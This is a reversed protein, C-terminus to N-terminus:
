FPERNPLGDRKERWNNKKKQFEKETMPTMSPSRNPGIPRKSLTWWQALIMLSNSVTQNKSYLKCMSLALLILTTCNSSFRTTVNKCNNFKAFLKLNSGKSQNRSRHSRKCLLAANHTRQNRWCGKSSIAGEPLQKFVFWAHFKFDDQNALKPKSKCEWGRGNM